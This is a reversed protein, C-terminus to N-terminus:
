ETATPIGPPRRRYYDVFAHTNSALEYDDLKVGFRKRVQEGVRRLLEDETPEGAMAAVVIGGFAVTNAIAADIAAEPDRSIGLHAYFLVKPKLARLRRMDALYVELNFNPLTVSPLPPYGRGYILGLAEGCFLGGTGTDLLSIHHPAHGPTDLILLDRAGIALRDGDHVTKIRSPPVPGIPGFISEYDEGFSMRTSRILREPDVAHRVGREGLVIQAEPFIDILTGIAGGHDVHIHTPIFYAVRTLGLKGLTERIAPVMVAPGPEIIAGGGETIFFVSFTFPSGPPRTEIRFTRDAVEIVDVTSPHIISWQGQTSMEIPVTYVGPM